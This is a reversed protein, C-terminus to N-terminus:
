QRHRGRYKGPRLTVVKWRDSLASIQWSALTALWLFGALTAGPRNYRVGYDVINLALFACAIRIYTGLNEHM